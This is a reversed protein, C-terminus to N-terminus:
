SINTLLIFQLQSAVYQNGDFSYHNTNGKHALWHQYFNILKDDFQYLDHYDFHTIHITPISKTLFHIEKCLLNHIATYYEIDFVFKFYNQAMVSFSDNRNEIDSFIIDCNPRVKSNQHVPNCRTHIRFPSTHSIIITDFQSLDCDQLACLIKYEGIGNQCFNTIKFHNELLASWGVNDDTQNRVGFSDGFIGIRKL